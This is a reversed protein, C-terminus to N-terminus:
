QPYSASDGVEIHNTEAWGANVELVGDVDESPFFPVPMVSPQVNGKIEVVKGGNVYIFDLPFNMDKMWFGPRGSEAFPFYMGADKDLSSRGSLGLAQQTQTAAVDLVVRAGGVDMSAKAVPYVSGYAPMQTVTVVFVVMMCAVVVGVVAFAATSIKKSYHKKM